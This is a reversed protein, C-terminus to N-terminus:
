HSSQKTQRWGREPPLNISKNFFYVLVALLAKSQLGREGMVLWGRKGLRRWPRM